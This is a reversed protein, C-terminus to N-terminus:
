GGYQLQEEYDSEGSMFDDETQPLCAYCVKGMDAWCLLCYVTECEENNCVVSNKNQKAKCVICRKRKFWKFRAFFRHLPGPAVTKMRRQRRARAMIRKKVNIVYFGRRRLMENYLFLIRKKERKPFFFTAIARRIRHMYAQVICLLALLLIPWSIMFYDMAGLPEPNPLCRINDSKMETESRSNLLGITKRLLRAILSDGGVFVGIEHASKFTYEVSARKRIIQFIVTLLHDIICVAIVFIIIPICHLLERIVAMRECGLIGIRFPFIYNVAEGKKLPLLTRKGRKKRRADIQKFYTTIYINDFLIDGNYKSAYSFAAVFILLVSLALIAQLIILMKNLKTKKDSIGSKVEEMMEPTSINVVPILPREEKKVAMNIEFQSSLNTLTSDVNDYTTGFNGEVPIKSKCWTTMLHVLKCLFKFKMPLCLLHNLLPVWITRMCKEHKMDFWDRCRREAEEAIYECRLMTKIEFLKQTPLKFKKAGEKVPEKINKKKEEKKKKEEAKKKEEEEKKKREEEEKKKREEEEKKKRVEEKKIEKAEEETESKENLGAKSMVQEKIPDFEKKIKNTDRGLEKGEKVLNGVISKLPALMVKWMMKTHNIQLEVACGISEVVNDLNNEINGVPGAYIASMVYIIMYTRGEKGLVLPLILFCACRFLPSTAWGLVCAGFLPYLLGMKRAENLNLPDIILFFLGIAVFGGFGAGLFVKTIYFDRGESWLFRICISPLLSTAARKLTTNPPKWKKKRKRKLKVEVYEDKHTEEEEEFKYEPDTKEEIGEEEAEEEEASEEEEEVAEEEAEEEEDDEKEEEESETFEEMEPKKVKKVKTQIPVKKVQQPEAAKVVKKPDKVRKVKPAIKFKEVDTSDTVEEEETYDPLKEEESVETVDEEEKPESVGEEETSEVKDEEMLETVDEEETLETVNEEETPETDDEETSEGVTSEEIEDMKKPVGTM